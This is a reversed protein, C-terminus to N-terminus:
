INNNVQEPKIKMGLYLGEVPPISHGSLKIFAVLEELDERNEFVPLYADIRRCLESAENWSKKLGTHSFSLLIYKRENRSLTFNFCVKGRLIEYGSSCNRPKIDHFSTYKKYNDNIWLVKLPPISETSNKPMSNLSLKAEFMVGPLSICKYEKIRLM